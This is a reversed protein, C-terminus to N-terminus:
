RQVGRVILYLALYYSGLVLLPSAPIPAHFKNYAILTDSVLFLLAGAATLRSGRTGLQTARSAAQGCMAVLCLMYVLVPLRLAGPITPWLVGLNVASLAMLVILPLPKGFLRADRTFARLFWLHALLFSALGLEFGAPSVEKPLMLFVDGVLSLILAGKTARWAGFHVPQTVLALRLFILITTAPKFIYHVWNGGAGAIALLAAMVIAADILHEKRM